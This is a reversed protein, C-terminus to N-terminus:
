YLLQVCFAGVVVAQNAAIPGVGHIEIMHAIQEPAGATTLWQDIVFLWVALAAGVLVVVIASSRFRVSYRWRDGLSIRGHAESEAV